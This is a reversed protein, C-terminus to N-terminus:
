PQTLSVISRHTDMKNLKCLDKGELVGKGGWCRFAWFILDGWDSYPVMNTNQWFGWTPTLIEWDAMLTVTYQFVSLKQFTLICSVFSIM